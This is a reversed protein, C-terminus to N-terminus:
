ACPQPFTVHIQIQNKKFFFFLFFFYGLFVLSFFLGFHKVTDAFELGCCGSSRLLLAINHRHYSSSMTTPLKWIYGPHVWSVSIAAM